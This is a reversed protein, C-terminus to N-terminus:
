GAEFSLLSTILQRPRNNQRLSPEDKRRLFVLEIQHPGETGGPHWIVFACGSGSTLEVGVDVTVIKVPLLLRQGFTEM